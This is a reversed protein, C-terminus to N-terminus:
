RIDKINAPSLQLEHQLLGGRDDIELGSHILKEERKQENQCGVFSM